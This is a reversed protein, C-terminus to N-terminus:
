LDRVNIDALTQAKETVFHNWLAGQFIKLKFGWRRCACVHVVYTIYVHGCAFFVRKSM